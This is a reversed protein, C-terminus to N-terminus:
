TRAFSYTSVDDSIHKWYNNLLMVLKRQAFCASVYINPSARRHYINPPTWCIDRTRLPPVVRTTCYPAISWTGDYLKDRPTTNNTGLQVVRSTGGRVHAPIGVLRYVHRCWHAHTLWKSTQVIASGVYAANNHRYLLLMNTATTSPLFRDVAIVYSIFNNILLYSVVSGNLMFM